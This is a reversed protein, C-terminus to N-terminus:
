DKKYRKGHWGAATIPFDPCWKPVQCMIQCLEDVSAARPDAQTVIEDHVTMILEYKGSNYTRIMAEAMIDRCVAQTINEALKGGYSAVRIYKKTQSDLTMYRLQAKETGWATETVKIEPHHYALMRGSPLRCYLFDGVVQYYMRGAQVLQGKQQVAELAGQEQEKWFEVIAPNAKRWRQKIIDAAIGSKYPLVTTAKSAYMKYMQEANSLEEDSATPVVIDYLPELDLKYSNAMTGFAAIGGAYGLALIATKGVQREYPNDDKNCEYGYIQSAAKCYICDGNRFVDLLDEQKALWAIGRAEIASYDAVFLEKGEEATIVSRISTSLAGMVDPYMMEFMPMDLNSICDACADSDIGKIGRPLNQLQVLKGGWRGTSASHYVLIDRLRGDASTAEAFAQYKKVSSKALLLKIQLARRIHWPLDTRAEYTKSVTSETFDPLVLGQTALWMLFRDRMSHRDVAGATIHRLEDNLRGSYVQAFEIAKTVLHRDVPVGNGNMYQDIFWVMQETPNLDPLAKDICRETEVDDVCYAYLKKFDEPDENWKAPNTKTPKRPKALKLMIKKGETDKQHALELVKAANDLAKPLGHSSAKAASCRWRHIPIPPFGYKKVMINQWMCQEFFANHATFINTQDAALLELNLPSLCSADGFIDMATIHERTITFVPDDDVAYCICLIETSPHMSYEYAGVAWIDAESRSEFDLHINTM